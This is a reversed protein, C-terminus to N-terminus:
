EEVGSALFAALDRRSFVRRGQPKSSRILGKRVYRALTAPDCRLFECAEAGTMAGEMWPLLDLDMRDALSLRPRAPTVTTM